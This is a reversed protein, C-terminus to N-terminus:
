LISGGFATILRRAEAAGTDDTLVSLLTKEPHKVMLGNESMPPLSGMLGNGLTNGGATGYPHAVLLDGTPRLRQPRSDSVTYGRRRLRQAAQQAEYPHDFQGTVTISM